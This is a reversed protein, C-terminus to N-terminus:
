RISILWIFIVVQTNLALWIVTESALWCQHVLCKWKGKVRIIFVACTTSIDTVSMWKTFSWAVMCSALTWNGDRGITLSNFYNLLLHQRRKFMQLHNAGERRRLYLHYVTLRTEQGGIPVKPTTTHRIRWRWKNINWIYRYKSKYFVKSLVYTKMPRCIHKWLAILCSFSTMFITSMDGSQIDDKEKNLSFIFIKYFFYFMDKGGYGTFFFADAFNTLIRLCTFVRSQTEPKWQDASLNEWVNVKTKM